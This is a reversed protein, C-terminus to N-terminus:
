HRRKGWDLKKWESNRENDQEPTKEIGEQINKVKLTVQKEIKQLAIQLPESDIGIEQLKPKILNTIQESIAFLYEKIKILSETDQVTLQDDDEILKGKVEPQLKEYSEGPAFVVASPSLDDTEEQVKVESSEIFRTEVIEISQDISTLKKAKEDWILGRIPETQRVVEKVSIINPGDLDMRYLINKAAFFLLSHDIVKICQISSSVTHKAVERNTIKEFLIIDGNELGVVTYNFVPTTHIAKVASNMKLSSLLKGNPKWFRVLKDDSGSIVVEDNLFFVINIYDEHAGWSAFEEGSSHFIHISNDASCGAAFFDRSPSLALTTPLPVNKIRNIEHGADLNYVSITDDFSSSFVNKNIPDFLVDSITEVHTILKRDDANRYNLFHVSNDGSGYLLENEGLYVVAEATRERGLIKKLEQGTNSYVSINHEGTGRYIKSEFNIIANCGTLAQTTLTLEGTNVDVFLLNRDGSVIILKEKASYSVSQPTFKLKFGFKPDFSLDHIKGTGDESVTIIEDGDTCISTILGDHFRHERKIIRAKSDIIAVNGDRKSVCCNENDLWILSDGSVNEIPVRSGLTQKQHDYIYFEDDFTVVATKSSDPSSQFLSRFVHGKGIENLTNNTLDYVFLRSSDSLVVIIKSDDPTVELGEIAEPFFFLVKHQKENEWIRVTGDFSCSAFRASHHFPSLRMVSFRHGSVGSFVTTSQPLM